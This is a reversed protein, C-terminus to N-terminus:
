LDYAEIVGKVAETSAADFSRNMKTVDGQMAAQQANELHKLAEEEKKTINEGLRSKNHIISKSKEVEDFSKAKDLVVKLTDNQLVEEYTQGTSKRLSVILEKYDSLEPNKSFFQLEEYEERTVYKNEDIANNTEVLSPEEKKQNVKGIYNYTDKISKLATEKDPFTKGTTEQIAQLVPDIEQSPDAPMQGDGQPQQGEEPTIAEDTILEDSM